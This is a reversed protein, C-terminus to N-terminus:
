GSWSFPAFHGNRKGTSDDWQMGFANMKSRTAKAMALRTNVPHPVNDIYQPEDPNAGPLGECEQDLLDGARMGRTLGNASFTIPRREVGAVQGVLPALAEMPGGAQGTAIATIAQVQADNAAEDIILGVKINGNAMPGPSFLMVVFSLGDLKVGDKQGKEIRMGVAAKCDGETPTATM